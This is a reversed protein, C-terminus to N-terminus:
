KQAIAICRPSDKTLKGGYIDGQFRINKFGCSALMQQLDKALYIRSEGIKTKQTGNPFIYTWTSIFMGRELNINSEKLIIIEGEKLSKRFIKHVQFNEFIYSPNTYDLIFYGSPKLANYACNLMKLNVQDDDSYGFSTYWNFAADCLKQPLFKFADAIYFDVSLHENKAKKLARHIYSECQDVGIINLGKKALACSLDGSGCCQDFVTQGATLKLESVLFNTVEDLKKTEIRELLLDAFIDDFFNNWWNNNM